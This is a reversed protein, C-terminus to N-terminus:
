THPKLFPDHSIVRGSEQKKLTMQQYYKWKEVSNWQHRQQLFATSWIQTPKNRFEIRSWEDTQKYERWYLMIMIVRMEYHTKDDTQMLGGVKNKMQLITTAIRYRELKRAFKM